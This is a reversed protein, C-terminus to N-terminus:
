VWYLDDEPRTNWWSEIVMILQSSIMPRFRLSISMHIRRFIPFSDLSLTCVVSPPLSAFLSLFRVDDCRREEKRQRENENANANENVNENEGGLRYPLLVPPKPLPSLSLPHSLTLCFCSEPTQPKLHEGPRISM